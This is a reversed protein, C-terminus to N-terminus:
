LNCCLMSCGILLNCRQVADFIRILNIGTLFEPHFSIVGHVAVVIVPLVVVLSATSLITVSTAESLFNVSELKKSIILM